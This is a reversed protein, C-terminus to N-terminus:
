RSASVDPSGCFFLYSRVTLTIVTNYTSAQIELSSISFSESSSYGSLVVLPVRHCGVFIHFAPTSFTDALSSSSSSQSVSGSKTTLERERASERQTWRATASADVAGRGSVSSIRGHRGKHVRAVVCFLTVSSSCRYPDFVMSPEPSVVTMFYLGLRGAGGKTPARAGAALTKDAGHRLSRACLTVRHVGPQAWMDVGRKCGATCGGRDSSM